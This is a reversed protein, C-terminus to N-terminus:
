WCVTGVTFRCRITYLLLLDSHDQSAEGVRGTPSQQPDTARDPDQVLAMTGLWDRLFRYGVLWM